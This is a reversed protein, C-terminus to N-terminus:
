ITRIENGLKYFDNDVEIVCTVINKLEGRGNDVDLIPIASKVSPL